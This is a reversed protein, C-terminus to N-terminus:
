RWHRLKLWRVWLRLAPVGRKLRFPREPRWICLDVCQRPGIGLKFKADSSGTWRMILTLAARGMSVTKSRSNWMGLVLKSESFQHNFRAFGGFIFDDDVDSYDGELYNVPYDGGFLYGVAGGVYVGTWDHVYPEPAIVDAATAAQAGAVAAVAATLGCGGCGKKGCGYKVSSWAIGVDGPMKTWMYWDDIKASIIAWYLAMKQSPTVYLCCVLKKPTTNACQLKSRRGRHHDHSLIQTSLGLVALRRQRM